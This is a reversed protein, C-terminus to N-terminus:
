IQNMRTLTTQLTEQAYALRYNYLNAIFLLTIQIHM